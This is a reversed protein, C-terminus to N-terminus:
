NDVKEILRLGSTRYVVSSDPDARRIDYAVGSFREFVVDVDFGILTTLSQERPHNRVYVDGQRNHLPQPDM